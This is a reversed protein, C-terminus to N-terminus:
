WPWPSFPLLSIFDERSVQELLTQHKQAEFKNGVVEYVSEEGTLPISGYLNKVDLSGFVQNRVPNKPRKDCKSVGANFGFPSTSVSDLPKLADSLLQVYVEPHRTLRSRVVPRIRLNRPIRQSGNPWFLSRAPCHNVSNEGFSLLGTLSRWRIQKGSTQLKHNFHTRSQCSRITLPRPM